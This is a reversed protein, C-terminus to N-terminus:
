ASVRIPVKAKIEKKNRNIVKIGRYKLSMKIGRLGLYGIGIKQKIM